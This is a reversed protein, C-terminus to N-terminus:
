IKNKREREREREREKKKSTSKIKFIANEAQTCNGTNPQVWRCLVSPDYWLLWPFCM